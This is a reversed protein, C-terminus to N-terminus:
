ARLATLVAVRQDADRRRCAPPPHTTRWPAPVRRRRRCRLVALLVATIAINHRASITFLGFGLVECIGSTFVFQAARLTLRLGRRSALPLGIALVGVIRERLLVWALPLQRSVRGMAHLSVGFGAAPALAWLPARPRHAVVLIESGGTREDRATRGVTIVALTV